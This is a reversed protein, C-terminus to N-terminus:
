GVRARSASRLAAIVQAAAPHDDGPRTLAYIPNVVRRRPHRVCRVRKTTVCHSPVISWGRGRAVTAVVEELEEFHYTAAISRPQRRYVAEFWAGFVYESEDYTIAPTDALADISRPLAAGILVLEERAVETAVLRTSVYPVYVVGLDCRGDHLAAV